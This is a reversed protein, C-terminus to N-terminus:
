KFDREVVIRWGEGFRRLVLQSRVVLERREGGETWSAEKRVMLTRETGAGSGAGEESLVTLRFRQILRGRSLWGLVDRYVFERTVDTRLFYRDVKEAYLAAKANADNAESAREFQRLFREVSEDRAGAGVAASPKSGAARSQAAATGMGAAAILVLAVWRLVVWGGRGDMSEGATGGCASGAFDCMMGEGWPAAGTM